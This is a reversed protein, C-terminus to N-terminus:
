DDLYRSTYFYVRFTSRGLQGKNYGLQEELATFNKLKPARMVVRIGSNVLPIEFMGSRGAAAAIALVANSGSLTGSKDFRRAHNLIEIDRKSEKKGPIRNMLFTDADCVYRSQYPYDNVQPPYLLNGNDVLLAAQGLIEDTVNERSLNNILTLAKQYKKMTPTVM